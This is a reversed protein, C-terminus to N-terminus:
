QAIPTILLQQVNIHTLDLFSQPHIGIWFIMGIIVFMMIGETPKLDEFNATLENPKGLMIKQYARLMYVASLIITLGAIAGYYSHVDFAAKLLMFEGIFGNTLPLAISGLVIILFCAALWPARHIIGGLEPLNLTNTRTHIIQAVLFLGVINIGHSLMQIISGQLGFYSFSFIGFAMLGVHSFSSYAILRKFHNQKLAIWAGYVIGILCLILIIPQYDSFAVPYHPLLWRIASYLGMKLMIGALLMSGAPPAITYTDPQWTHLPFLPMKIAFAAFFALFVIKQAIDGMPAGGSQIRYVIAALMFLSGVMTYIFFKFTVRVRDTSGFYLVIIYIPILALEWFIYFLLLDQAVFVGILASQMFLAMSYLLRPKDYARTYTSLIILPMLLNTLLVMMLSIGDMGVDFASGASALWLQRYHYQVGNEPIFYTLAHLTAAFSVLTSLLAIWKGTKGSALGALAAGLLPWVILFLSLYENYAEM